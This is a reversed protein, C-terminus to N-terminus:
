WQGEMSGVPNGHDWQPIMPRSLYHLSISAFKKTRTQSEKGNNDEKNGLNASLEGEIGKSGPAGWICSLGEEEEMNISIHEWSGWKMSIWQSEYQNCMIFTLESGYLSRIPSSSKWNKVKITVLLELHCLLVIADMDLSCDTAHPPLWRTARRVMGARTGQCCLWSWAQPSVRVYAGPLLNNMPLPHCSSHHKGLAWAKEMKLMRVGMDTVAWECMAQLSTETGSIFPSARWVNRPFSKVGLSLVHSSVSGNRDLAM